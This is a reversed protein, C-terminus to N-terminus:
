KLQINESKLHQKKEDTIQLKKLLTQFREFGLFVVLFTSLVSELFLKELM